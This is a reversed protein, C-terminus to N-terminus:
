GDAENFQEQFLNRSTKIVRKAVKNSMMNKYNARNFDHMQNHEVPVPYDDEDCIQPYMESDPM